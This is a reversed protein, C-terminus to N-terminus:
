PESTGELMAQLDAESLVSIGLSEAKTLKSGASEEAVVYDTKASVSGTVRGGHAEILAAAEQRSMTPLTGTLVFSKGQLRDDTAARVAKEMTLGQAKLASLLTRTEQRSFYAVLNRASVEGMDRVGLIEEPTADALRMLSHFTGMLDRAAAKGIGPIGLGTLLREPANGKSKEIASLLNDTSKEKGILKQAILAERRDKLRYIDAENKIYGKEILARVSAIGFGKIDM